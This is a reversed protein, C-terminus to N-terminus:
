PEGPGIPRRESKRDQEDVDESSAHLDFARYESDHEANSQASSPDSAGGCGCGHVPRCGARFERAYVAMELDQVATDLSGQM